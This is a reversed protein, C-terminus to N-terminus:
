LYDWVRIEKKVEMGSAEFFEGFGKDTVNLLLTEENKYSVEVDIRTQKNGRQPFEDINLFVYNTIKTLPNTIAFKCASVRDVICEVKQSADYWNTGAPSLVVQRERGEYLVMLGIDLRTRGKCLLVTNITQEGYIERAAYGAGKVILNHGKFVRKNSCLLQMSRKLKDGDNFAEGILFCASYVNRRFMLDLIQAMAIDANESDEKIMSLTVNPFTEETVTVIHPGRKSNTYLTRAVLTDNRFNLMLVNNVWIDSKQSCVYYAFSENHSIVRISSSLFNMKEFANYIVEINSRDSEAISVVIHEVQKVDSNIAVTELIKSMFISVITANDFINEFIEFKSKTMVLKPIDMLLEGPSNKSRAIAEDGIYWHGTKEDVFCVTPILYRQENKIVSMSVPTYEEDFVSVQTYDGSFDIGITTSILRDDLM